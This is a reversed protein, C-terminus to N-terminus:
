FGNGPQVGPTLAALTFPDRMNLPLNALKANDIVAGQSSQSTELLSAEGMVTVTENVAGVELVYDLNVTENIHLAIGKREVSRFGAHQIATRYRGPPLLPITYSGRDDSASQRKVGTDENVVSISAGSIVAGSTDRITGALEGTPAQAFICVSCVAAPLLGTTRKM